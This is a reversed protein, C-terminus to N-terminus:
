PQPYIKRVGTEDGTELSRAKLEADSAYGYMTQAATAENYLDNLMLWHGAEHTMINQVDVDFGDTRYLYAATDPDETGIDGQTWVYFSDTNLATDVDVIQKVKGRTYWVITIGIAGPYLSSLYAWGVVNNGDPSSTNIGPAIGTIGTYTFDIYSGSDNEWADFSSIIANQYGGPGREGTPNYYYPVPIDSNAWRIGSYSYLKIGGGPLGAPKGPAANRGYHIFVIKELDPPGKGPTDAPPTAGAYPAIAALLVLIAVLSVLKKM